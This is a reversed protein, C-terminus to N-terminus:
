ANQSGLPSFILKIDKLYEGIHKDIVDTQGRRIKVESFDYYQVNRNNSGLDHCSLHAKKGNDTIKYHPFDLDPEERQKINVRPHNEFKERFKNRDESTFGCEIVFDPYDKLKMEVKEIVADNQYISGDMVNGHDSISIKHEATDLLETFYNTAVANDNWGATKHMSFYPWQQYIILIALVLSTVSTAIVGFVIISLLM